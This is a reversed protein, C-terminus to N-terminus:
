PYLHPVDCRGLEVASVRIIKSVEVVDSALTHCTVLRNM